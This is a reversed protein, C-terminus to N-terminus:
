GEPSEVASSISSLLNSWLDDVKASVWSDSPDRVTGDFCYGHKYREHATFGHKLYFPLPDRWFRQFFLPTFTSRYLAAVNATVNKRHQWGLVQSVVGALLLSGTKYVRDCPAPPSAALEHLHVDGDNRIQFFCYGSMRPSGQRMAVMAKMVGYDNRCCFTPLYHSSREPQDVWGVPVPFSSRAVRKIDPFDENCALRVVLGRARSAQQLLVRTDDLLM